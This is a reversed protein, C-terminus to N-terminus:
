KRLAFPTASSSMMSYYVGNLWVSYWVITLLMLFNAAELGVATTEVM